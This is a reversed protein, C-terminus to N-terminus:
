AYRKKTKQAYLVMLRRIGIELGLLLIMLGYWLFGYKLSIFILFIPIVIIAAAPLPYGLVRLYKGLPTKWMLFALLFAALAFIGVEVPLLTVIFGAFTTLGGGGKFGFFIPWNHGAVVALGALMQALPSFPLYVCALGVAVGKLFDLIFTTIGLFPGYQRFIGSAGAHDKERIDKKKLSKSFLIAFNLSGILYSGLILLFERM